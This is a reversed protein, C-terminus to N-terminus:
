KINPDSSIKELLYGSPHLIFIRNPDIVAEESLAVELNVPHGMSELHKAPFLTVTAGNEFVLLRDTELKRYADLSAADLTQELLGQDYDELADIRYSVGNQASLQAIGFLLLPLLFLLKNKM